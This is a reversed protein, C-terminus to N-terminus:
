LFLEIIIKPALNPPRSYTTLFRSSQIEFFKPGAFTVSCRIIDFWGYRMYPLCERANFSLSPRVGLAEFHAQLANVFRWFSGSSARRCEQRRRWDSSDPSAPLQLPQYADLPTPSEEMTTAATSLDLQLLMWCRGVNKSCNYHVNSKPQQM